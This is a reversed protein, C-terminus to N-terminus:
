ITVDEVLTPEVSYHTMVRGVVNLVFKTIYVSVVSLRIYIYVSVISLRNYIYVSIVRLQNYIYVSVVRLM